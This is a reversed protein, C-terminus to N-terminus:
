STIGDEGEAAKDVHKQYQVIRLIFQEAVRISDQPTIDQSQFWHTLAFAADDVEKDTMATM